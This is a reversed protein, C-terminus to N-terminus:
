PLMDFRIARVHHLYVIAVNDELLQYKHGNLLESKLNYYYGELVMDGISYSNGGGDSEISESLVYKAKTCQLIYYDVKDDDCVMAFNDGESVLDSLENFDGGFRPGGELDDVETEPVEDTPKLNVM